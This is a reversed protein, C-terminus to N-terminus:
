PCKRNTQDFCFFLYLIFYIRCLYLDPSCSTLGKATKIKNEEKVTAIKKGLLVWSTRPAKWILFLNSKM